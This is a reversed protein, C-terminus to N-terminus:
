IIRHGYPGRVCNKKIEPGSKSKKACLWRIYRVVVIDDNMWLKSRLWSVASFTQDFRPAIILSIIAGRTLIYAEIIGLKVVTSPRLFATTISFPFSDQM